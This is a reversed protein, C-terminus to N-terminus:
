FTLKVFHLNIYIYKYFGSYIFIYVILFIDTIIVM